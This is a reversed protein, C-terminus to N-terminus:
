GLIILRTLGAYAYHRIIVFLSLVAAYFFGMHTTIAMQLRKKCRSVGRSEAVVVVNSSEAKPFLM